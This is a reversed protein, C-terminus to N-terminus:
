QYCDSPIDQKQRRYVFVKQTEPSLLNDGETRSDSLLFEADEIDSVFYNGALYFGVAHHGGGLANYDGCVFINHRTGVLDAIRQFDATLVNQKDADAAKYHNLSISSLIFLFFAALSLGMSGIKSYKEVLMALTTYFFLPLGIYYLSQFDHFVVFHRMPIAWCWGSVVLSLVLIRQRSLAAAVLSTALVAIGLLGFFLPTYEFRFVIHPISMRGMLYMQLKLFYIWSFKSFDYFSPDPTVFGCRWLMLRFTPLERMPGGIALYENTFNIALLTMGFLLSTAGLVFYRSRILAGLSRSATLEKVCGIVTFPLLIAFIQWGLFIACFSKILLQSFRKEQEFVVMGHFTLFLGFLTPMDNFIMDNYFLCYYSSFALLTAIVASWRSKRLRYISLYALCAAGIFFANMLNRAVSIQMSLDNHFPLTLLKIAAFAGLPFGNYLDYTVRGDGDRSMRTFMLFHHEPSLHAAM